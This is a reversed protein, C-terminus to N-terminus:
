PAILDKMWPVDVISPDKNVQQAWEDDDLRTFNETVKEFYSSALGVYAKPGNCTDVTMTLLRADGTGVHLVRGVMNGAEDTPQTHVDAITPDFEVSNSSNIFLKAYWGDAGAPSGCGQQLVVAENIFMMQEATFATGTREQEAMTALM